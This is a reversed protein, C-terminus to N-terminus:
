QVLDPCEAFRAQLHSYIEAICSEIVDTDADKLSSLHRLYLEADARDVVDLQLLFDWSPDDPDDVSIFALPFNTFNKLQRRKLYCSCLAQKSGNECQVDM